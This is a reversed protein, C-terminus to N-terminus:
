DFEMDVVESIMVYGKDLIPWSRAVKVAEDPNKVQIEAYASLTEGVPMMEVNDLTVVMSQKLVSGPNVVVEEFSERWIKLTAMDQEGEEFTQPLENLHFFLNYRPM